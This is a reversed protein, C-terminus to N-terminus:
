WRQTITVSALYHASSFYVQDDVQKSEPKRFVHNSKEQKNEWGRQRREKSAKIHSIMDPQTNAQMLMQLLHAVLQDEGPSSSVPSFSPALSPYKGQVLLLRQAATCLSSLLTLSVEGPVQSPLFFGAWAHTCFQVGNHQLTLAGWEWITIPHAHCLFWPIPKVPFERVSSDKGVKKM